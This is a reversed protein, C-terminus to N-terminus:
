QKFNKSDTNFLFGIIDRNVRHPFVSIFFPIFKPFRKLLNPLTDGKYSLTENQLLSWKKQKPFLTTKNIGKEIKWLLYDAKSDNVFEESRIFSIERWNQKLYEKDDLRVLIDILVEIYYSRLKSDEDFGKDDVSYIKEILNNLSYYPTPLGHYKSNRL